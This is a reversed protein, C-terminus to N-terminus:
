HQSPHGRQGHRLPAQHIRPQAVGIRSDPSRRRSRRITRLSVDTESHGHERMELGCASAFRMRADAFVVLNVFATKRVNRAGRLKAAPRTSKPKDTPWATKVPARESSRDDAVAMQEM